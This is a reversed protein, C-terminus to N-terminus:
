APPYADVIDDRLLSQHGWEDRVLRFDCGGRRSLGPTGYTHDRFQGGQLQGAGFGRLVAELQGTVNKVFGDSSSPHAADDAPPLVIRGDLVARFCRGHTPFCCLSRLPPERWASRSSTWAHLDANTSPAACELWAVESYDTKADFRRLATAPGASEVLPALCTPAAVRDDTKVPHLERRSAARALREYTRVGNDGRSGCDTAGVLLPEVCAAMLTCWHPAHAWGHVAYACRDAMAECRRQCAVLGGVTESLVSESMLNACCGVGVPAWEGDPGAHGEQEAFLSAFLGHFSAFAEEASRATHREQADQELAALGGRNYLARKAPDRLVEYSNAVSLFLAEAAKPDGRNKDPHHRLSMKHYAKKIEKETAESGVGLAAYLDREPSVLKPKVDDHKARVPVGAGLRTCPCELQWVDAHGM